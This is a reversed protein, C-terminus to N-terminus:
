RVLSITFFIGLSTTINICKAYKGMIESFYLNAKWLAPDVTGSTGLLRFQVLKADQGLTYVVNIGSVQMM